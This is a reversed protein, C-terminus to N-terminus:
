SLFNGFFVKNIFIQSVILEVSFFVPLEVYATYININPRNHPFQKFKRSQIIVKTTYGVIDIFLNENIEEILACFYLSKESNKSIEQAPIAIKAM